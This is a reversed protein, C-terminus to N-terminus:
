TITPDQQESLLNESTLGTTTHFHSLLLASSQVGATYSITFDFGQLVLAWRSLMNEMKQGSLWQLPVQDIYLQFPCGLLYHRFQKVAYVVGLIISYNKESQTLALSAYVM